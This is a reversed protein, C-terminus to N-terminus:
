SALRIDIEYRDEPIADPIVFDFQAGAELLIGDTADATNSSSALQVVFWVADSGSKNRLRVVRTNEAFTVTGAATVRTFVNYPLKLVPVPHGNAMGIDTSEIVDISIAM